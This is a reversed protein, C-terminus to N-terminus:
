RTVEAAIRCWTDRGAPAADSGWEQALAAVIALGRGGEGDPRGRGAVAPVTAPGSDRVRVEVGGPVAQVTVAFRGGPQGSAPHTIANAALESVCLVAADAAPHRSGLSRRVMARAERVSEPV